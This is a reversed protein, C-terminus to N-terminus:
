SVCRKWYRLWLKLGDFWANIAAKVPPDRVEVKVFLPYFLVKLPEDMM